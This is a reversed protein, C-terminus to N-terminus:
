LSATVSAMRSDKGLQQYTAQQSSQEGGRLLFLFCLRGKYRDDQDDDADDHDGATGVERRSAAHPAVM